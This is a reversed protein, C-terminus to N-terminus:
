PRAGAQCNTAWLIHGRDNRHHPRWLGPRIRGTTLSKILDGDM